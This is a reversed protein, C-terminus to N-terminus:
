TGGVKKETLKPLDVVRGFTQRLAREGKPSLKDYSDNLADLKKKEEEMVKVNEKSTTIAEEEAQKADELKKRYNETALNVFEQAAGTALLREEYDKVQQSIEDLPNMAEEVLRRYDAMIRNNKELVANARDQATVLGTVQLTWAKMERLGAGLDEKFTKWKKSQVDMIENSATLRENLREAQLAAQEAAKYFRILALTAATVSITKLVFGKNLQTIKNHTKESIEGTKKLESNINQLKPSADDIITFEIGVQENVM